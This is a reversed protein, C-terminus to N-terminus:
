SVTTDTTAFYAICAGSTLDIVTFNGYITLGEPFTEGTFTDGSWNSATLTNFVTNEIFTIANWGGAATHSDTDSIFFAGYSGNGKDGQVTLNKLLQDQVTTAM